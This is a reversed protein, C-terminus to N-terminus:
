TGTLVNVTANSDCGIASVHTAGNRALAISSHSLVLIATAPAVVVNDDGLALFADSPGRNIILVTDGSGPLALCAPPPLAATVPDPTPAPANLMAAGTPSFNPIAM